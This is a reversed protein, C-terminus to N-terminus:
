EGQGLSFGAIGDFTFLGETKVFPLGDAALKALLGLLAETPIAAGPSGEFRCRFHDTFAAATM